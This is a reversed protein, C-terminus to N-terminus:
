VYACISVYNYLSSIIVTIYLSFTICIIHAFYLVGFVFRPLNFIIVVFLSHQFFIFSSHLSLTLNLHVLMVNRFIFSSFPKMYFIWNSWCLLEISSILSWKGLCANSIARKSFLSWSWPKLLRLTNRFLMWIRRMLINMVEGGWRWVLVWFYFLFFWLVGYM